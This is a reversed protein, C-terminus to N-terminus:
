VTVENELGSLATRKKYNEAQKEFLLRYLGDKAMLEKHTGKQVVRGNDLLYICDAMSTSSLRHSIFIVTKDAAVQRISDYIQYESIPDLASSPEDLIVIPADHAFVRAIAVKQAEGGSLQIGEKDFERTLVSDMGRPLSQVKQWGGSRILAQKVREKEEPTDAKGMMVNEAVTLAYIQFDQFVTGFLDYYARLNYDALPKGDLLIEGETPEYLRMILKVLTSKGAGNLGVLAIKEGTKLTMSIDRLTPESQGKYTFSVHRLELTHRSGEPILGDDNASIGPKHQFFQLINNVFLAHKRFDVMYEVVNALQRSLRSLGNIMAVMGGITIAGTFLVEYVIACPVLTSMAIWTVMGWVLYIGRVKLLLLSTKHMIQGYAQHYHRDIVHFINTLRYEKAYQNMYVTRRAYDVQRNFPEVEKQYKPWLKSELYMLPLVLAASLLSFLILRIDMTALVATMGGISIITGALRCFTSLIENGRKVIDKSAVMYKNFYEPDEYCDLDCAVAREFMMRNMYGAVDQDTLHCVYWWYYGSFGHRIVSIVVMLIFIPILQIFDKGTEATEIICKLFYVNVLAHYIGEFANEGLLMWFRLPSAKYMHKLMFANNKFIAVKEKTKNSKANEKKETTKM